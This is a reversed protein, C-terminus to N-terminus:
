DGALLPLLADPDRGAAVRVGLSRAKRATVDAAWRERREAPGDMGAVVLLECGRLGEVFPAARRPVPGIRLRLSRWLLAAVFGLRGRPADDFLYARCDPAEPYGAPATAPTRRLRVLELEPIEELLRTLGAVADDPGAVALRRRPRVIVDCGVPVGLWRVHEQVLDIAIRYRGPEAPAEVHAPVLECEGPRLAAALASWIRSGPVEEGTADYWRSAVRIQPVGDWGWPWTASGTNHVRVDLTRREGAFLSLARELLDLRGAQADPETLPWFRDIEARSAKEVSARPPGAPAGAALVSDIHAREDGPVPALVADARREPLYFAFNLARGGSRLGPRTQEYRRAKERRQEFSRLVLDAHWLTQELFRGPGASFIPRHFENSFRIVRPDTRLLRLTHDPRWPSDDLYTGTDPYLWRRRLSYHFVSEDRCLAPLADILALSPIEDDDVVLAWEGRCQQFLWPMPRDVPDAYPYIVIRDAVAALDAGVSPDARDDLAVVIEDAVPRLTELLAAVRPGPGATM